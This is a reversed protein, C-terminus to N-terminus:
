AYKAKLKAHNKLMTEYATPHIYKQNLKEKIKNMTQVIFDKVPEPKMGLLSAIERGIFYRIQGDIFYAPVAPFSEKYHSVLENMLLKGEESNKFHRKRIAEELLCAEKENAPLLEEQINLQYGIYRWTYLFDEKEQTTIPFNAQEMGVLIIYSFALNTGAMDEQNVPTGWAAEWATKTQIYYRVMAHIIRTKNVQIYAFGSEDFSGEKLVSIIFQATDLLRKGPSKRMKGTFYIAKNGPSAANYYPLSKASLLTM